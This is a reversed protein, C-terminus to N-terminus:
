GTILVHVVGLAQTVVKRHAIKDKAAMTTKREPEIPQRLLAM